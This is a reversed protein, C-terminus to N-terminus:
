ARGRAGCDEGAQEHERVGDILAAAVGVFVAEAAWVMFARALALATM